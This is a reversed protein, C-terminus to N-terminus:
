KTNNAPLLARITLHLSKADFSGFVGPFSRDVESIFDNFIGLINEPWFVKAILTGESHPIRYYGNITRGNPALKALYKEDNLNKVTFQDMVGKVRKLHKVHEEYTICHKENKGNLPIPVESIVKELSRCAFKVYYLTEVDMTQGAGNNLSQLKDSYQVCIEKLKILEPKSLPNDNIMAGLTTKPWLSGPNPSKLRLESHNDLWSQLGLMSESFAEYALVIVSNHAVYFEKLKVSSPSFNVSIYDLHKKQINM